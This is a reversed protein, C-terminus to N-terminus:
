ETKLWYYEVLLLFMKLGKQYEEYSYVKFEYLGTQKDLRLIGMGHIDRKTMEVYAARYASLQLLYDPYIRGSTKFDIIYSEGNLVCKLDLTGAYGKESKVRVETEVEEVENKNKWQIFANFCKMVFHEEVTQPWGNLQLEIVKHVRAGINVAELSTEKWDAMRLKWAELDPNALLQLVTTVSPLRKGETVYFHKGETAELKM